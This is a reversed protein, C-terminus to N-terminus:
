ASAAPVAAGRLHISCLAEMALNGTLLRGVQSVDKEIFNYKGEGIRTVLFFSRFGAPQSPSTANIVEGNQFYVHVVESPNGIVLEGTAGSRHLSRLLSFMSSQTVCGSSQLDPSAGVNAELREAILLLRQADKHLGAASCREALELYGKLQPAKALQDECARLLSLQEPSVKRSPKM